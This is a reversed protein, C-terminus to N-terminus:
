EASDYRFYKYNSVRKLSGLMEHQVNELLISQGIPWVYTHVVYLNLVILSCTRTMALDASSALSPTKGGISFTSYKPNNNDGM